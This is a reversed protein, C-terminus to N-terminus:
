MMAALSITFAITTTNITSLAFIRPIIFYPLAGSRQGSLGQANFDGAVTENKVGHGAALIIGRCVCNEFNLLLNLSNIVFRCAGLTQCFCFQIHDDFRYQNVFFLSPKPRNAPLFHFSFGVTRAREFEVIHFIGQFEQMLSFEVRLRAEGVVCRHAHCLTLFDTIM